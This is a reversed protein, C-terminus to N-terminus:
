VEMPDEQLYINQPYDDQLYMGQAYDNESYNDRSLIDQSHHHKPYNFRVGPPMSRTYMVHGDGFILKSRQYPLTNIERLRVDVRHEIDALRASHSAEPSLEISQDDVVTRSLLPTSVGPYTMEVVPGFFKHVIDTIVKKIRDLFEHQNSSEGSRQTQRNLRDGPAQLYDHDSFASREIAGYYFNHTRPV